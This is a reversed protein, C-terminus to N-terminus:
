QDFSFLISNFYFYDLYNRIYLFSKMKMNIRISQATTSYMGHFWKILYSFRFLKPFEDQQHTNLHKFIWWCHQAIAPDHEIWWGDSIYKGMRRSTDCQMAHPAASAIHDFYLIFLTGWRWSNLKWEWRWYKISIGALDERFWPLVSAM